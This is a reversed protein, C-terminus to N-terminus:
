TKKIVYALFLLLGYPGALERLAVFSWLSLNTRQSKPNWLNKPPSSKLNGSLDNNTALSGTTLVRPIRGNATLYGRRRQNSVTVPTPLILTM